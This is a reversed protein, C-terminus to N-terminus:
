TSHIHVTYTSHVIYIYLICMCEWVCVFYIYLIYLCVYYIYCLIYLMTYIFYILHKYTNKQSEHTSHTEPVLRWTGGSHGEMGGCPSWTSQPRTTALLGAPWHDPLRSRRRAGGEPRVEFHLHTSVTKVQAYIWLLEFWKPGASRLPIRWVDACM